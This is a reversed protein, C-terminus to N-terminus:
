VVAHQIAQEKQRWRKALIFLFPVVIAWSVAAVIVLLEPQQWTLAGLKQGAFYSLPSGVAALLASLWLRDMLWSLSHNLTLMFNVWLCLIWWPAVPPWSQANYQMLGAASYFSDLILGVILGAIILRSDAYRSAFYQFHVLVFFVTVLIAPLNNGAAGSLVCVLWSLQFLVFNIINKKAM